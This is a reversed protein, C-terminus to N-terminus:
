LMIESYGSLMIDSELQKKGRILYSYFYQEPVGPSDMTVSHM